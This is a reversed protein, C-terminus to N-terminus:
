PTLYPVVRHFSLYCVDAQYESCINRLSQIFERLRSVLQDFEKAGKLQFHCRYVISMNHKRREVDKQITGIDKRNSLPAKVSVDQLAPDKRKLVIGYSKELNAVDMFFNSLDGLTDLVNAAQSPNREIWRQLKFDTKRDPLTSPIEWVHCWADLDRRQLQVRAMQAEVGKHAKCIGEIFFYGNACIPLLGIVGTIIGFAEAM